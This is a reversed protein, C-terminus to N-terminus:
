LQCAYCGGEECGADVDEEAGEDLEEAALGGDEGGAQVEPDKAGAIDDREYDL